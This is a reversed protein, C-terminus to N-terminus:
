GFTQREQLVSRDLLLRLGDIVQGIAAHDLGRARAVRPWMLLADVCSLVLARLEIRGMGPLRSVQHPVFEEAIQAASYYKFIFYFRNRFVLFPKGRVTQSFSGSEHHIVVADPAYVVRYGAARARRCLDLDEFYGPFFGEDLLGVAALVTRRIAMAAATVYEVERVKGYQGADREGCGYHFSLGLPWDFYGGAHQITEGDPYLIKAGGVGVTEDAFADVLAALWGSQVVTDQNLLVLVDGTAVRLGCNNGAAFGLNRENRILRVQPYREAVFSASGDTSGNDVVIVELDPYGQSLVAELCDALYEIGNWSLVIVSARM